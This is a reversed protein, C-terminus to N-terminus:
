YCVASKWQNTGDTEHRFTMLDFGKLVHIRNNGILSDCVLQHCALCFKLQEQHFLLQQWFSSSNRRDKFIGTFVFEEDPGIAICNPYFV